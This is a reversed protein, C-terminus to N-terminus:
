DKLGGAAVSNIVWPHLVLFAAAIPFITIVAGAMLIGWDASHQGSLNALGVPLTYMTEDQMVVLPLLFDSWAATFTLIALAATAPRALPLIVSWFVRLEGCGDIRASEAYADPISTIYQRMLFVGFVSVAGPLILALYSNLLGLHKLLLFVPILTVQSPVMMTLLMLLFLGQKGPFQFKAFVYGGLANLLVSLATITISVFLSNLFLRAFSLSEWLARYHEATIATPIWAPPSQYIADNTKFSTTFAWFFPIVALLALVALVAIRATPALAIPPRYPQLPPRTM